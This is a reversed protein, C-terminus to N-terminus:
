RAERAGGRPRERELLLLHRRRAKALELDVDGGSVLASSGLGPQGLRGAFQVERESALKAFPDGDGAARDFLLAHLAGELDGDAPPEDM